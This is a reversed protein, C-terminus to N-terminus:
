PGSPCSCANAASQREPQIVHRTHAYLKAAREPDQGIAAEVAAAYLDSRGTCFWRM